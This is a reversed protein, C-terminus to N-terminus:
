RNGTEGDIGLSSASNNVADDKRDCTGLKALANGTMLKFQNTQACCM